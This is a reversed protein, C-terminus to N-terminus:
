SQLYNFAFGFETFVMLMNILNDKVLKPLVMTRFGESTKVDIKKHYWITHTIENGVSVKDDIEVIYNEVYLNRLIYSMYPESSLVNVGLEEKVERHLAQLSTEGAEVGGGPTWYKDVGYGSVLLVKKDRIIIARATHRM